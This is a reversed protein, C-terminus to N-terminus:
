TWPWTRRAQQTPQPQAMRSSRSGPVAVAAATEQLQALSKLTEERLQMFLESELAKAREEAGLIKGEVEKLEPTIFREGGVTTQKRIYREPVNALNSKPEALNGCHDNPLNKDRGSVVIKAVM